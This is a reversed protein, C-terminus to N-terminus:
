FPPTSVHQGGKSKLKKTGLLLLLNAKNETNQLSALRAAFTERGIREVGGGLFDGTQALILPGPVFKFTPPAGIRRLAGFFM